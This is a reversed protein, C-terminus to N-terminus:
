FLVFCFLGPSASHSLCYLPEHKALMLSQEAFLLLWAHHHEVIIGAHLFILLQLGTQIKLGQRLFCFGQHPLSRVLIAGVIFKKEKKKKRYQLKFEPSVGQVVEGARKQSPEKKKKKL